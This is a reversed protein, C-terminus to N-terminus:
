RKSNELLSSNSPIVWRSIGMLYLVTALKMTITTSRPQDSKSRSSSDSTLAQHHLFQSTLVDKYAKGAMESAKDDCSQIATESFLM